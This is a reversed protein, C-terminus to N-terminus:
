LAEGQAPFTRADVLTSATLHLGAGEDVEALGALGALQASHALLARRGVCSHGPYESGRQDRRLRERQGSVAPSFVDVYRAEAFLKTNGDGYMGGLRHQFGAGFNIGGQNSSFHGVVANM